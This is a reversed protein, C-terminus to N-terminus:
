KIAPRAMSKRSLLSRGQSAFYHAYGRGIGQGAGTIIVIRDKLTPYTASKDVEFDSYDLKGIETM